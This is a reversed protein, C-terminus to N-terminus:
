FKLAIGAKLPSANWGLEAFFGFNPKMYYRAGAFPGIHVGSGYVTGAWWVDNNHNAVRYGLALGGYLDLNDVTIFHKGFHYTGRGAITFFNYNLGSSWTVFDAQGGVGIFDTIGAEFSAGVGFGGGYHGGLNIGANLIKDGKDFQASVAAGSLILVSFLLSSIIKKM